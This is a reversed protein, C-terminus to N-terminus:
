RTFGQNPSGNRGGTRSQDTSTGPGAGVIIVRGPYPRARNWESTLSGDYTPWYQNQSLILTCDSPSGGTWGSDVVAQCFAAQVVLMNHKTSKKGSLKSRCKRALGANGMGQSAWFADGSCYGELQNEALRVLNADYPPIHGTPRAIYVLSSVILIIGIAVLLRMKTIM